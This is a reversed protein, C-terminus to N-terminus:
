EEADIPWRGTQLMGHFVRITEVYFAHYTNRLKETSAHTAVIGGRAYGTVYYAEFAQRAQVITGFRGGAWHITVLDTFADRASYVDTAGTGLISVILDVPHVGYLAWDNHIAVTVGRPGGLEGLQRALGRIATDYRLASASLLPVGAARAARVVAITEDLDETLPKDVFVPLRREIARMAPAYHDAGNRNVVLVADVGEMAADVTDVVAPIGAVAAKREAEARDAGWLKVARLGAVALDGNLIGGYQETHSSDSGIIGLRTM